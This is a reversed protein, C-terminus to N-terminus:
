QAQPRLMAPLEATNLLSAINCASCVCGQVPLTSLDMRAHSSPYVPLRRELADIQEASVIRARTPIRIVM